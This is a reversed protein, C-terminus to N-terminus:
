FFVCSCHHCFTLNRDSKRVQMGVEHAQQFWAPAM